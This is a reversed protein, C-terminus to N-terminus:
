ATWREAEVVGGPLPAARVIARMLDQDTGSQDKEQCSDVTRFILAGQPAKTASVQREFGLVRLFHDM